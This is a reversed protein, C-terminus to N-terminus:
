SKQNQIIQQTLYVMYIFNCLLTSVNICASAIHVRRFSKYMAFYAKNKKLETRDVYGVCYATGFGKEMEFCKVMTEVLIPAIFFANIFTLVVTTLLLYAQIIDQGDWTEYPNRMTYTVFSVSALVLGTTFFMPFLRSQVQGFMIRPLNYFMTLGAVFTVWCQSGFHASFSTVHVLNVALSHPDYHRKFPYLYYSILVMMVLASVHRSPWLRIAQELGIVTSSTM